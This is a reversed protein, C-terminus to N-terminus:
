KSNFLYFQSGAFFWHHNKPLNKSKNKNNKLVATLYIGIDTKQLNLSSVNLHIYVRSSLRVTDAGAESFQGVSTKVIYLARPLGNALVCLCNAPL